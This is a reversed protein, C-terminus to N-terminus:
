KTQQLLIDIVQSPNSTDGTKGILKLFAAVAKNDGKKNPGSKRKYEEFPDSLQSALRLSKEILTYGATPSRFSKYMNMPNVGLTLPNRTVDGPTLFFGIENNLRLAFYLAYQRAKDDDDDDSKMSSLITIIIGTTLMYAMEMAAKKANARELPSLNSDHFPSFEKMLEKTERIMLKWFAIQYGETLLGAEQDIGYAKFRRKYGPVVFKRYMLLLRGWWEREILTKNFEDYVGHMRKNIAHLSNQVDKNVLGNKSLTGPITVGDILKIKGDIGLEYADILDIEKGDKIAKSRLMMAIMTRVQVNHEGQQQMFFWTDSSFMKRATSHSVKRGYKDKYKGQMPDYLDIIQGILSKHIPSSFDSLFDGNLAHKDYILRSKQYEGHGFFESGAAEITANSTATLYNAVSLLPNGGIQTFSALSMFSNISKGLEFKKGFVSIESQIQTKGYIQMDIFGELLAAIHNGDHKKLYKNMGEIGAKKAAANILKVSSSDTKFVGADKMAILTSDSMGILSSQAEYKLTAEHYLMISSILDLSVDDAPMNNHFLLPVIKFKSSIQEEGFIEDDAETKQTAKRFGFKVRAVIGQDITKDLATKHISPLIYGLRSEFPVREFQDTFYQKVLFKYYDFKSKDSKLDIFNQNSYLSKRPQAFERMYIEDGTEDVYYNKALWDEFDWKQWIKDEVLKRKEEILKEVGKSVVFGDIIFDEKLETNKYYWNKMYDKAEKEGKEGKTKRIENAIDTADALAKQYKTVDIEQTFSMKDDWVWQGEENKKRVSIREYIGRNFEAVNDTKLIGSRTLKYKEFENAAINAFEFALMRVDEFKDKVLKAFLAVISNSSSIAPSIWTDIMGLDVDSGSNLENLITDYTIGGKFKSKIEAIEKELKEAQKISGPRGISRYNDVRLQKKAVDEALSKNASASVYQSLEAAILPNISDKYQSKIRKVSKNIKQLKWIASGEIPDKMEMLEDEYFNSLDEVISEYLDTTERFYQLENIAEIGSLENNEVKKITSEMRTLLGPFKTKQNVVFLDFIQNVFKSLVESKDVTAIAKQLNEIQSKEFKNTGTHRKKLITLREELITLIKDVFTGYKPNNILDSTEDYENDSWYDEVFEKQSSIPFMNEVNVEEINVGDEETIHVPLIELADEDVFQLGKSIALGKYISLQAEHKDKRSAKYVTDGNEDKKKFRRNYANIKGSKTEYEGFKGNEYNTPNISSKLDVFKVKGDPMVIVVDITGAVKKEENYVIQQTLIISDPYLEKFETFKNYLESIVDDSLSVDSGDPNREAIDAYLLDVAEELTKGLLVSRLIHDIQNGWERNNDYLSEDGEFKFFDDEELVESVRKLKEGTEVDIYEGNILKVRNKLYLLKEVTLKMKKSPESGTREKYSNVQEVYYAQEEESTEDYVDKKKFQVDETEQKDNKTFKKFGEIDKKNGLIHIQESERVIYEQSLETGKDGTLNIVSDYKKSLNKLIKSLSDFEKDEHIYTNKMNLIVSYLYENDSTKFDDIYGKYKAFYIYGNNLYSKEKDFKDGELVNLSTHYSIDKVQSEPFISDLYQSYQEVTGISALEPNSDFLEQVGPKINLSTLDLKGKGITLMDALEQLTTNENLESIKIDKGFIDRLAQKFALFLRKIAALFPKGTEPNINKKAAATLARVGIEKLARISPVGDIFDEKYLSAVEKNIAKGEDTELISSILTWLLRPNVSELADFLPHSFEHISDDLNFETFYTQGRYYFASEDNYVKGEAELLDRAQAKTVFNYKIGLKDSLAKVLTSAAAESIEDSAESESRNFSVKLFKGNSALYPSGYQSKMVQFDYGANKLITELQFKNVQYKFFGSQDYNYQRLIKMLKPDTTKKFQVDEDKELATENERINMLFWEAYAKGEGVKSVLDKWEQSSKNPCYSM